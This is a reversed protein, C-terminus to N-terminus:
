KENGTDKWGRGQFDGASTSMLEFLKTNKPFTNEFPVINGSCRILGHGAGVNTIYSLQNDSINLLRATDSKLLEEVNQTLGTVFGYYKRIRKYLRYFFDASYQYRFLLYFEDAFIWTTRGKKWNQIVRNFISDLTVLMGLPMLQEGLERIDYDIIRSKTNVNTPQAFTNLSGNIFLESSLALGRAEEEPQLMLARYLDKLTPVEERYGSRIYDRYVDATCRDLISKEKASLNGAGVLQEFLSLIFESKEILPNKDDGYAADMDLANLHTDSTASIRIVEGDLAEVLSVFESEPDLILIDDDTSLALDVIEEKASFSKGSGSVGLRFSNGNLLKRRDAVIMNKSVANQGYYIGGPQMVEQTHFPILVATSETTLTRLAHIKRLGYPLVTNLGDVQQWKLVSMQCLAKRGVSLLTETDSDLQKKSDAMHVMTLLGFMMRQDRTTLDDLMEKTEKRQLEMDYPVVASFNNNANQRRQWNTVNTEVGLLRNQIERVAEDTPVPLIDISLMLDRSLGCLESIMDDKVYSAYDQMYLVRGYRGDIKFFDKRFEMSEPCIWDKFSGGRKASAKLDFPFCPPDGAKFFDRFIQLRDGADLEEATSSLKALHTVIDTGVRAFYTRAEDVSKKHISVTLYREQFISNNTGSVKSRLMENYEKRYRDLRDGKMPILLSEEFEEKNIRCNNLTIKVSSGSDLANLLESYDLFMEMKDSKSAIYYNIDSFRFSKSFKNGVQFIGDQWIRQIPLAEQVSKPVKFKDRDMKMAQNLTKIVPVGERRQQTSPIYTIGRKKMWRAFTLLVWRKGDISAHRRDLYHCLCTQRDGNENFLEICGGDEIWFLEQNNTDVFSIQKQDKGTDPLVKESKSKPRRREKRDERGGAIAICLLLLVMTGGLLAGTIVGMIFM